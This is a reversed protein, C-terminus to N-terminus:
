RSLKLSHKSIGLSQRDPRSTKPREDDRGGSLQAGLGSSTGPPTSAPALAERLAELVVECHRQLQEQRSKSSPLNRMWDPGEESQTSFRLMLRREILREAYDEREQRLYRVAHAQLPSHEEAFIEPHLKCFNRCDEFNQQAIFSKMLDSLGPAPTSAVTSSPSLSKVHTSDPSRNTVTTRAPGRDQTPRTGAPQSSPPIRPNTLPDVPKKKYEYASRSSHPGRFERSNRQEREEQEDSDDDGDDDQERSSYKNKDKSATERSARPPDTEYKLPRSSVPPLRDKVSSRQTITDDRYDADNREYRSGPVRSDLRSHSSLPLLTEDDDGWRRERIPMNVSQRSSKPDRVTRQEYDQQDGSSKRTSPPYKSSVTSDRPRNAPEFRDDPRRTNGSTPTSSLSNPTDETWQLFTAWPELMESRSKQLVGDRM